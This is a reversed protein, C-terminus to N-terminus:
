KFVVKSYHPIRDDEKPLIIYNGYFHKLIGAANNPGYFVENEFVYKNLPFIDKSRMYRKQVAMAYIEEDSYISDKEEDDINLFFESIKKNYEEQSILKNRLKRNLYNQVETKRYNSLNCLRMEKCRYLDVSLGHHAYLNDQPYHECYVETNLDKIHAWGHFYLPESKEDELFMDKPLKKRLIEIAQDYTDDFLFFDFDDDWPIYGKHRVAGLLTGFTIMYPIGNNELINAIIKGMETLRQQTKTIDVKENIHLIMYQKLKDLHEEKANVFGIKKYLQLAKENRKAM